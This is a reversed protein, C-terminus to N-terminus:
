KALRKTDRETRLAAATSFHWYLCLRLLSPWKLVIKCGGSKMWVWGLIECGKMGMRNLPSVPGRLCLFAKVLAACHFNM